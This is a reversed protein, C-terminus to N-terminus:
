KKNIPLDIIVKTYEGEKSEIQMKGKHESIIGHSISLGLGTGQGAPKTSFFPQAVKDLISAPIGIGWDCFTIRLYPQNDRTIKKGAIELRKNKHAGPYKQNLAYLANNIINLFVQQIQNQNAIILPPDPPFDTKLHVGNKELLRQSLSLTNFLITPVFVTSKGEHGSKAFTLLSKVIRTIRRGERIIESALKQDNGSQKNKDELIRAYNIIGNIPNNIEHAVGAALEGLSALHGARLTEARMKMKETIDRYIMVVKNVVGQEDTIPFASMAWIRGDNFSLEISVPKGTEFCQLAYCNACTYEVNKFLECCCYGRLDSDGYGLTESTHRNAWTVTLDPSLLFIANRISNLLVHYENSLSRFERESELLARETKKSETIDEFLELLHHIEGSEDLQPITKVRVIKDRLPREIVALRKTKFCSEKKCFSCIKEIGEKTPDNAYEGITEYCPKGILEEEGMGTLEAFFKNVRIFKYQENLYAVGIPLNDFIARLETQEATIELREM